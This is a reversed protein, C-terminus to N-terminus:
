GCTCTRKARRRADRYDRRWGAFRAGPIHGEDYHARARAVHLVVVKPDNLHAALWATSVILESRVPPPKEKKIQGEKGM